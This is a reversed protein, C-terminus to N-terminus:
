SEMPQPGNAAEEEGADEEHLPVYEYNEPDYVPNGDDNAATDIDKPPQAEDSAVGLFAKEQPQPAHEIAAEEAMPVNEEQLMLDDDKPDYESKGDGNAATDM